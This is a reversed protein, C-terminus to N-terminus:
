FNNWPCFVVHPRIAGGDGGGHILPNVYLSNNLVWRFIQLFSFYQISCRVGLLSLSFLYCLVDKQVFFINKQVTKDVYSTIIWRSSLGTWLVMKQSRLQKQMVCQNDTQRRYLNSIKTTWVVKVRVSSVYIYNRKNIKVREPGRKKRYRLSRPPPPNWGGKSEESFQYAPYEIHVYAVM